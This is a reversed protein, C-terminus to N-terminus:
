KKQKKDWVSWGCLVVSLQYKGNLFWINFTKAKFNAANVNSYYTNILKKFQFNLPIPYNKFKLKFM